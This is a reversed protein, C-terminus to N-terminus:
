RPLSSLILTSTPPRLSSTITRISIERRLDPTRAFHIRLTLIQLPLSFCVEQWRHIVYRNAQLRKWALAEIKGAVAGDNMQEEARRDDEALALRNTVLHHNVLAFAGTPFLNISADVYGADRAGQSLAITTFGHTPIHPVAATLIANEAPTFPLPADHEYSHYTRHLPVRSQLSARLRRHHYQHHCRHCHRLPLFPVPLFLPFLHPRLTQIM